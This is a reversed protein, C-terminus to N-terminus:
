GLKLVMSSVSFNCIGEWWMVSLNPCLLKKRRRNNQQKFFFFSLFFGSRFNPAEEVVFVFLYPVFCSNRILLRQISQHKKWNVAKKHKQILFRSLIYDMYTTIIKYIEQTNLLLFMEAHEPSWAMNEMAYYSYMYEKTVLSCWFISETVGVSCNGLGHLKWTRYRVNVYGRM